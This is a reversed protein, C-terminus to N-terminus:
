ADEPYLGWQDSAAGPDGEGIKDALDAKGQERYISALKTYARGCALDLAEYDESKLDCPLSVRAWVDPMELRIERVAIRTVEVENKRSLEIYPDRGFGTEDCLTPGTGGM